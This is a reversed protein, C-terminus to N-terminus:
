KRFISQERDPGVSIIEAPVGTHKEIYAIYKKCNEPLEEYTKCETIDQQWGDLEEYIPACQELIHSVPTFEKLIKGKYEYGTCVRIKEFTDLVDLKTIAWGTLGNIRASYKAILMDFPGCRRPRGTTAGFEHGIDALSKGIEEFDETVFPGNGVRTVYAKIVGISGDIMTPGVGAGTCIGGTLTNSSTVYPFTGLDIDLLAGQAGEFLVTKDAKIAEFVMVNTDKIFPKIVAYKAMVDKYIEDFNFKDKTDYLKEFEENKANVLDQLKNRFFDEDEFDVLRIGSRNIKDQYAPGIGRFTTGIKNTRREERARDYEPHYPMVVNAFPSVFLRGLPDVGNENLMELEHIFSNYDFVVGNAIISVCNDHLVGSPIIHLVFKSSKIKVTHGANAGGQCRVVLDAKKSLLDIIKGKGEDGWQAGVAIKATM